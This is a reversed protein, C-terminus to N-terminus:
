PTQADGLRHFNGTLRLRSLEVFDNAPQALVWIGSDDNDEGILVVDPSRPPILIIDSSLVKVLRKAKTARKIDGPNILFFAERM